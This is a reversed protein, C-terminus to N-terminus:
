RLRILPRVVDGTLAERTTSTHTDQARADISAMTFADAEGFWTGVLTYSVTTEAGATGAISARFLKTTATARSTVDARQHMSYTYGGVTFTTVHETGMIEITDSMIHEGPHDITTPPLQRTQPVV